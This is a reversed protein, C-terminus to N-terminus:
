RYMTAVVWFAAYSTSSSPAFCAGINMRRVADHSADLLSDPLKSPDTVTFAFVRSASPNTALVDRAHVAQQKGSCALKRLDESKFTVVPQLGHSARLRNFDAIISDELQDASQSAIAHAFDQVVYLQGNKEAVGVGLSNYKPNLLNERHPPSHMLADHAEDASEADAVNEAAADFRLGVAGMRDRLAAEGPFQHSLAQKEVMLKAHDRAAEATQENWALPEVGADKRAQNALQFIRQEAQGLDAGAAFLAPAAILAIIALVIHSTFVRM